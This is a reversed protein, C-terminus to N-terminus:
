PARPRASRAHGRALSSSFRRMPLEDEDWDGMGADTGHVRAGDDDREDDEHDARDRHVNRHAEDTWGIRGRNRGYLDCRLGALCGTLLGLRALALTTSVAVGTALFPAPEAAKLL